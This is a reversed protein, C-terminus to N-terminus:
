KEKVLKFMVNNRYIITSNIPYDFDNLTFGVPNVSALDLVLVDGVEIPTIGEGINVMSGVQLVEYKNEKQVKKAVEASLIVKTAPPRPIKVLIDNDLVQIGKLDFTETM